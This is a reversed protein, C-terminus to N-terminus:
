LFSNEQIGLGDYKPSDGTIYASKQCIAQIPLEQYENKGGSNIKTSTRIDHPIDVVNYQINHKYDISIVGNFGEPFEISENLKIVYPNDESISYQLSTVRILPNTSGNFIFINSITNVPYSAFIFKQSGVERVNQIESMISTKDKLIVKDMFSLRETDRLTLAITGKIEPSWYKYKTDKNLATIIGITEIPNIYVWGLGLCNQCSSLNTSRTNKCPCQIADYLIVKYGKDWILSEFASKDFYVAPYGTIPASSKRINTPM